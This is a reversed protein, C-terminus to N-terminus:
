EKSEELEAAISALLGPGTTSAQDRELMTVLTREYATEIKLLLHAAAFPEGKPARKLMGNKAIWAQLLEIQAARRAQISLLEPHPPLRFMAELRERHREALPGAVAPDRAGTRNYPRQHKLNALQAARKTPDKSAPM